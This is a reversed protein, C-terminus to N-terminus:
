DASSVSHINNEECYKRMWDFKKNILHVFCTGEPIWCEDDMFWHWKTDLWQITAENIKAKVSWVTENDWGFMEQIWLPYMSHEGDEVLENMTEMMDDWKGFYDLKDLHKKTCGVIGTNFVFNIPDWGEHELLAFANWYKAAPSRISHASADTTERWRSNERISKLSADVKPDNQFIAIGKDLDWVEFFNLETIPVVDIDLYLVQDYEKSLEYMLHIKYFNVINWTTVYPYKEKYVREFKLYQDDREFMRYEAGISKAYSEQKSQLWDHHDAFRKASTENKSETEGPYPPQYDREKKPIEIYISYIINKM